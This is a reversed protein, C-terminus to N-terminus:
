LREGSAFSSSSHADDMFTSMLENANHVCCRTSECPAFALTDALDKALCNVAISYACQPAIHILTPNLWILATSHPYCELSIEPSLGKFSNRAAAKAPAPHSRM